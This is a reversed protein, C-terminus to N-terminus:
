SIFFRNMIIHGQDNLKVIKSVMDQFEVCMHKVDKQYKDVIESLPNSVQEDEASPFPDKVDLKAVSIDVKKVVDSLELTPKPDEIIVDADGDDKITEAAIAVVQNAQEIIDKTAELEKTTEVTNTIVAETPSDPLNLDGTEQIMETVKLNEIEGNEETNEVIMETELIKDENEDSGEQISEIQIESRPDEEVSDEQLLEVAVIKEDIIPQAAQENEETEEIESEQILEIGPSANREILEADMFEIAEVVDELAIESSIESDIELFSIKNGEYQHVVNEIDDKHKKPVKDCKQAAENLEIIIAKLFQYSQSDSKCVNQVFSLDPESHTFISCKRLDKNFDAKGVNGFLEKLIDEEAQSKLKHLDQGWDVIENYSHKFNNQLEDFEKM